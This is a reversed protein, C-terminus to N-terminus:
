RELDNDWEEPDWDHEDEQVEYEQPVVKCKEDEGDLHRWILKQGTLLTYTAVNFWERNWSYWKSNMMVFGGEPGGGYTIIHNAGNIGTTGYVTEWSEEEEEKVTMTM